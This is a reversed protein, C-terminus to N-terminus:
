LNTNELEPCASVIRGWMRLKREEWEKARLAAIEREDIDSIRVFHSALFFGDPHETFGYYKRGMSFAMEDIELVDSFKPYSSPPYAYGDSWNDDICMVKSKGM